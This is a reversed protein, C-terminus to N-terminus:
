DATEPLGMPLSRTPVLEASGNSPRYPPTPRVGLWYRRILVRAIAALPAAFFMGLLAGIPGGILMGGIEGGVILVVIIVVPHLEMRDGILLPMIFKSEAFHLFTFFGLVALAVPMGQSLWTLLIIPIGGIIPGVIPIARTVGALVGLLLAYPVGLAALGIGVVVGALLCLIFQGAIFSRMIDNFEHIVRLTERMRPRPVLGVFERKLKHSDILFYFALVPLLVIEVVYKMGGLVKLGTENVSTELGKFLNSNKAWKEVEKSQAWDPAQADYQVLFKQWKGQLEKQGAKSTATRFQAVFPTVVLKGGYWLVVCALAFVYLTAYTRVTHRRLRVQSAPPLSRRLVMSRYVRQFQIVINSCGAHFHVFSPRRSLWEVMPDLVYAIIAGIFVTAIIARLRYGAYVLIAVLALRWFLRWVANVTIESRGTWVAM